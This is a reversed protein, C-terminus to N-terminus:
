TSSRFKAVVSQPLTEELRCALWDKLESSMASSTALFRLGVRGKEDCWCVESPVSCEESQGPITFQIKVKTGPKLPTPTMVALGGESINLSECRIQDANERLIFTPMLIPCRFYRLRERVILSYAAKLTRGVTVQSLPKEFVFNSGAEFATGSQKADNTIAFAVTTRNSPSLRVRELIEKSREGLDLDVVVAEFKRVNLLSIANPIDVCVETSAALDQLAESVEKIVFSDNSVLFARVVSESASAKM